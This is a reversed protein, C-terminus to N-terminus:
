WWEFIERLSALSLSSTGNMEEIDEECAGMTDRNHEHARQVHSWEAYGDAPFRRSPKGVSKATCTYVCM